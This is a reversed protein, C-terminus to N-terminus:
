ESTHSQNCDIQQNDYIQIEQTEKKPGLSMKEAAKQLLVVQNNALVEFEIDLIFKNDM